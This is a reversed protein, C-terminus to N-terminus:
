ITTPWFAAAQPDDYGEPKWRRSTWRHAANVLNKGEIAEELELRSLTLTRDVVFESFEDRATRESLTTWALARTRRAVARRVLKFREKRELIATFDDATAPDGHWGEPDEELDLYYTAKPLDAFYVRVAELSEDSLADMLNPYILFFLGKKSYGSAEHIQRLREVTLTYELLVYRISQRAQDVDPMRKGYPKLLLAIERNSAHVAALAERKRAEYEHLKRLREADEAKATAAKQSLLRVEELKAQFDDNV